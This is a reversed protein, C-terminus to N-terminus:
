ILSHCISFVKCPLLSHRLTLRGTWSLNALSTSPMLLRQSFFTNGVITMWFITPLEDLSRVIRLLLLRLSPNLQVLQRNLWRFLSTLQFNFVILSNNNMGKVQDQSWTQSPSHTRIGLRRCVRFRTPCQCLRALINRTLWINWAILFVSTGVNNKRSHDRKLGKAEPEPLTGYFAYTRSLGRARPFNPRVSSAHDDDLGGNEFPNFTEETKKTKLGQRLGANNYKRPATELTPLRSLKSCPWPILHSTIFRYPIILLRLFQLKRERAKGGKM